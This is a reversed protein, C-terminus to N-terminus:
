SEKHRVREKKERKREGEKEREKERERNREKQKEREKERKRQKDTHRDTQVYEPGLDIRIEVKKHVLVHVQFLGYKFQLVYDFNFYSYIQCFFDFMGVNETINLGDLEPQSNSGIFISYPITM